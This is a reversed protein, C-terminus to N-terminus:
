SARDGAKDAALGEPAARFQDEVAQAAAPSLLPKMRQFLSALRGGLRAALESNHRLVDLENAVTLEAFARLEQDALTVSEGRFRDRFNVAPTGDLRPYVAARDCSAYIYVLREAEPGIIGQLLPRDAVDILATDFGDTGYSAHCYGAARWASPARWRALCAAVRRLHQLLTGGPHPIGAAGHEELFTEIATDDSLFPTM